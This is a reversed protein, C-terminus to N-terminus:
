NKVYFTCRKKADTGLAATAQWNNMINMDVHIKLLNM